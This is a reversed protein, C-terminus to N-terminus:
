PEKYYLGRVHSVLEAPPRENFLGHRSPKLGSVKYLDSRM